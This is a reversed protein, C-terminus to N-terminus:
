LRGLLAALYILASEPLTQRHIAFDRLLRLKGARGRGPWRKVLAQAEPTLPLNTAALAQMNAMVWSRLQGQQLAALRDLRARVTSRAGVVNKSHQRYILVVQTDVLVQAGSAMLLLYIWWDHHPVCHLGARRVSDLASPNLTLTHGSLINQVLANGLSPGRPWLNSPGRPNLEADSVMYRAAWASPMPGAAQLQMVARELKHPLWVDDQDSLAVIGPPLDPHCLLHLYNAASGQRPGELLRVERNPNRQAFAEIRDRTDDLSGDDSIWLSWHPHSQAIFSDLQADIWRAGNFSGM